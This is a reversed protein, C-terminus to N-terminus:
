VPSIDLDQFPELSHAEARGHVDSRGAFQAQMVQDILHYVVRNVLCQGAVGLFNFDDDVNVVGDGHDVVTTADGHVQHREGVACHHRRDLHHEGLEVGAAFEVGGGVFNGATEVAHADTADVRERLLEVDFDPAIAESPLHVETAAIRDAIEALCAGALAASGFYM